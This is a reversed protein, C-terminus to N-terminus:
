GAAKPVYIVTLMLSADGQSLADVTAALHIRCSDQADHKRSPRSVRYVARRKCEPNVAGPDRHECRRVEEAV